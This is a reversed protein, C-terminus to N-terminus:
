RLVNLLLFSMILKPGPTELRQLRRVKPELTLSGEKGAPLLFYPPEPEPFDRPSPTCLTTQPLWYKETGDAQLYTAETSSRDLSSPHVNFISISITM